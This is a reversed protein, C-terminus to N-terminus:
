WIRKHYIQINSIPTLGIKQNYNTLLQIYDNKNITKINEDDKKKIYIPKGFRSILDEYKERPNPKSKIGYKENKIIIHDINESEGIKELIDYYYIYPDDKYEDPVKLIGYEILFYYNDENDIAYPYPSDNNGVHSVFKVIEKETTFSYINQGIFLYTNNDLYNNGLYLLISNGDLEPGHGGSYETTENKPSEGIFVKKAQFSRVLKIYKYIKYYKDDILHKNDNDDDDDNDNDDDILYKGDVKYIDVKNEPSIYVCFPIEYNDHIFYHKWGQHTEKIYQYKDNNPDLKKSLFFNNVTSLM